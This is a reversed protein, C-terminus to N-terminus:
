EAKWVPVFEGRSSKTYLIINHKLLAKLEAKSPLDKERGADLIFQHIDYIDEESFMYKSWTSGPNGISYARAPEKISGNVIYREISLKHRGLIKAVELTTYAKGMNKKVDSYSYMVRIKDPYCWATIKDDARSSSLVRHLKKNLFFYLLKKRTGQRKKGAM